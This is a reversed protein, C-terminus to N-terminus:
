RTEGPTSPPLPTVHPRKAQEMRTREEAQCVICRGTAKDRHDPCLALREVQREAMGRRRREIELERPREAVLAARVADLIACVDNGTAGSFTGDGYDVDVRKIVQWIAEFAPDDLDADTPKRRLHLPVGLCGYKPWPNLIGLMEEATPLPDTGEPAADVPQPTMSSLTETIRDFAEALAADVPQFTDGQWGCDGCIFHAHNDGTSKVRFSMCSPCRLCSLGTVFVPRGEPTKGAPQSLAKGQEIVIAELRKLETDYDAFRRAIEALERAPISLITM